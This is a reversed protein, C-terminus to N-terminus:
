KEVIKQVHIQKGRSDLVQLIYIGENLHELNLNVSNSNIKDNTYVEQRYFDYIKISLLNESSANLNSIKVNTTVLTPIVEIDSEKSDDKDVNSMRSSSSPPLSCDLALTEDISLDIYGGTQPYYDGSLIEINNRAKFELQANGTVDNNSMQIEYPATELIYSWRYLIRDNVEVIGFEDAMDKSMKVAKYADLVGSGIQGNYSQNVSLNDIKKSTLKLVTEVEEQTLCYNLDLMLGVTGAVIPAAYSTGGGYTYTGNPQGSQQTLVARGPAAIDVRDNYTISLNSNGVAEFRDKQINHTSDPDNLEYLHGVVTVAIVHDNAAPYLYAGYGLSPCSFAGNGAAAILVAGYGYAEDMAMQRIDITNQSLNCSGWSMNIIKVGDKALQIVANTGGSKSRIFSNFGVSAMGTNNDTVGGAFLAVSTGHGNYSSSSGGNHIDSQGILDEHNINVSESISIIIDTSGTTMDWAQPANIYNLEEQEQLEGGNTGFDNPIYLFQIEKKEELNFFIHSLKDDMEDFLALDSTTIEFVELLLANNSAPLSREFSIVNYKSFIGNITKDGFDLTVYSRGQTVKPIKSSDKISFWYASDQSFSFTFITLFLILILSRM